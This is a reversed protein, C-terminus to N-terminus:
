NAHYADSQNNNKLPLEVIFTAGKGLESEVRITGGHSATIQRVIYLGLGLGGFSDLSVAREFREFIRSQDESSIGIGLDQVKLIANGGEVSTTIIIEKGAGFKIANNLLNILIQEIRLREWYGMAQANGVLKVTCKNEEFELQFIQIVERALTYLNIYERAMNLHREGLRSVDLLDNVLKAFRNLNQNSIRILDRQKDKSIRDLQDAELLRNILQTHLMLSTLPTKLEHSAISLFDDRVQVAKQAELRAAHEQILLKDRSEEALKRETINEIITVGQVFEGKDTRIASTSIHGWVIEGDKRIYRKDLEYSELEGRVLAYFADKSAGREEPFTIDNFNLSRLETESYGIFDQFARNSRLLYGLSDTNTIGVPSAEYISRFEVESKLLAKQIKEKETVDTAIGCVGEIAGKSDLLPFKLTQYTLSKLNELPVDVLKEEYSVGETFLHKLHDKDLFRKKLEDSVAIIDGNKNKIMVSMPAYELIGQFMRALRRIPSSIKNTLIYILVVGLSTVLFGLGLLLLRSDSIAKNTKFTSIGTVIVGMQGQDFSGFYPMEIEKIDQNGCCRVYRIRKDMENLKKHKISDSKLTSLHDNEIFDKYNLDYSKSIVDGNSALIVIYKISEEKEILQDSFIQAHYKGSFSIRSISISLVNTINQSLRNESSEIIGQYIFFSVSIVIAILFAFVGLFSIGIKININELDSKEIKKFLDM